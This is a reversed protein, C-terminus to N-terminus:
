QFLDTPFIIRERGTHTNATIECPSSFFASGPVGPPNKSNYIQNKHPSERERNKHECAQTCTHAEKGKNLTNATVTVSFSKNRVSRATHTHARNAATSSGQMGALVCVFRMSPSITHRVMALAMIANAIQAPWSSIAEQGAGPLRAKAKASMGRVDQGM